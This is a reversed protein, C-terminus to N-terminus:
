HGNPRSPAPTADRIVILTEGPRVFGLERRATEEVAAPDTELRRGEQQLRQNEIRVRIVEARAAEYEHRMRRAALYGNDGVVANVLLAGLAVSLGITLLRRRRDRIEQATRLRRRARATAPRDPALDQAAEDSM